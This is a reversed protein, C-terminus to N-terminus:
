QEELQVPAQEIATATERDKEKLLSLLHSGLKMVGEGLKEGSKELGKTAIITAITGISWTTVPEM